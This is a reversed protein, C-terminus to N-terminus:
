MIIIMIIDTFKSYNYMKDETSNVFMVQRQWPPLVRCVHMHIILLQTHMCTYLSCGAHMHTILLWCAHTCAHHLVFSILVTVHMSQLM